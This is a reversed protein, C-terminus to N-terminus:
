RAFSHPLRQPLSMQICHDHWRDVLESLVGGVDLGNMDGSLCYPRIPLQQLVRRFGAFNPARGFPSSKLDCFAEEPSIRNYPVITLSRAGGEAARRAFELEHKGATPRDIHVADLPKGAEQYSLLVAVSDLGGSLFLLGDEGGVAPSTLLQDNWCSSAQRNAILFDRLDDAVIAVNGSELRARMGAPVLFVNKYPSLYGNTDGVMMQIAFGLPDIEQLASTPVEAKRTLARWGDEGKVLL